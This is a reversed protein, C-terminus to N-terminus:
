DPTHWTCGFDHFREKAENRRARLREGEPALYGQRMRADIADIERQIASCAAGNAQPSTRSHESPVFVPPSEVVSSTVAVPTTDISPPAYTNMRDTAIEHPRADAGCASDSYVRKGNVTCAIVVTGRSPVAAVSMTSLNTAAAAGSAARAPSAAPAANPAHPEFVGRLDGHAGAHSLGWLLGGIAIAGIVGSLIWDGVRPEPRFPNASSM